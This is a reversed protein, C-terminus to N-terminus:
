IICYTYVLISIHLLFYLMACLNQAPDHPNRGLHSCTDYSSPRQRLWGPGKFPFTEQPIISLSLTFSGPTAQHLHPQLIPLVPCLCQTLRSYTPLWLLIEPLIKALTSLGDQHWTCNKYKLFFSCLGTICIGSTNRKPNKLFLILAKDKEHLTFQIHQCSSTSSSLSTMFSDPDKLRGAGCIM